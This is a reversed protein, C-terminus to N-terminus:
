CTPRAMPRSCGDPRTETASLSRTSASPNSWAEICNRGRVISSLSSRMHLWTTSPTRKSCKRMICAICWLSWPSLTTEMPMEPSMYTARCVFTLAHCERACFSTRTQQAFFDKKVSAKPESSCSIKESRVFLRAKRRYKEVHAPVTTATRVNTTRRMTTLLPASLQVADAWTSTSSACARCPSPVM